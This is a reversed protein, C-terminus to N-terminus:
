KGEKKDKIANLAYVVNRLLATLVFVFNTIPANMRSLIMAILQERGPLESLQKVKQAEVVQGELYGKSIKFGGNKKSFEVLIKAIQVPDDKVVGIGFIKNEDFTDSLSDIGAEKLAIKALRNKIVMYSSGSQRIRKRLVDIDSAKINEISSILFGKDSSFKDRMTSIMLEKVKRGYKEAM